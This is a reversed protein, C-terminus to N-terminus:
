LIDNPYALCGPTIRPNSKSLNLKLDLILDSILFHAVTPLLMANSRPVRLSGREPPVSANKDVSAWAGVYRGTKGSPLSNVEFAYGKSALLLFMGAIIALLAIFVLM